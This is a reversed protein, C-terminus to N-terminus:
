QDDEVAEAKPPDTAAPQSERPKGFWQDLKTQVTDKLRQVESEAVEIKEKVASKLEERKLEALMDGYGQDTMAKLVEPHQEFNTYTWGRADIVTEEWTLFRKELLMVGHDTKVLFHSFRWWAVSGGLVLLVALLAVSVRATKKM